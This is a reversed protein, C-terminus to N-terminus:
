DMYLAALILKKSGLTLCVAVQDKNTYEELTWCSDILSKHLLLAARPREKSNKMYVTRIDKHIRPITNHKTTYPETVLVVPFSRRLLHPVLTDWAGRTHRLNIQTVSIVGPSSTSKANNNNNFAPPERGRSNLAPVGGALMPTSQCKPVKTAPLVAQRSPAEMGSGHQQIPTTTSLKVNSLEM